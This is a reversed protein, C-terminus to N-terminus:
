NEDEFYEKTNNIVKKDKKDFIKDDNNSQNDAKDKKLVKEDISKDIVNEKFKISHIEQSAVLIFNKYKKILDDLDANYTDLNKIILSFYDLADNVRRKVKDFGPKSQSNLVDKLELLQEHIKKITVMRFMNQKIVNPDPQPMMPTGTNPDMQTQDMNEDEYPQQTQQQDPGPVGYTNISPAVAMPNNVNPDSLQNQEDDEYYQSIPDVMPPPQSSNLEGTPVQNNKIDSPMLNNIDDETSLQEDDYPIEESNDTNDDDLDLAPDINNPSVNQLNEEGEDDYNDLEEDENPYENEDDYVLDENGKTLDEEDGEEPDIYEEQEEDTYIPTQPEEEKYDEDNTDNEEPPKEQEIDDEYNIDDPNIIDKDAEETNNPSNNINQDTNYTDDDLDENEISTEAADTNKIIITGRNNNIIIKQAETLHKDDEDEFFFNNISM